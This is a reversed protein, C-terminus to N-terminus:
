APKKKADIQKLADVVLDPEDTSAVSKAGKGGVRSGTEGTEHSQKSVPEPGLFGTESTETGIYPSLRSQNQSSVVQESVSTAGPTAVTTNARDGRAWKAEPTNSVSYLDGQNGGGTVRSTDKLKKLKRDFSAKSWGKKDKDDEKVKFYKWMQELWATFTAKNGLFCELQFEMDELDQDEKTKGEAAPTAVPDGLALSEFSGEPTDITIPVLAM